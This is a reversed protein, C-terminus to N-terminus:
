KDAQLASLWAGGKKQRVQLVADAMFRYGSGDAAHFNVVSDAFGMLVASCIWSDSADFARHQMLERVNETNNSQESSAQARFWKVMAMPKNSYTAEFHSLTRNYAPTGELAEFATLRDSLNTANYYRCLLPL